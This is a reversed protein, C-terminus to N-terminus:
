SKLMQPLDNEVTTTLNLNYEEHLIKFVGESIFEPAKPGIVIDRIGLHLLGLLIAVAKQEFWSLVITLPLDNVQCDFADALAVAINVASISNNCQGLDIFRPIDGITGFDIDNFRFKGCASTLILCDSPVSMALEKFYNGDRGPADCGAIVFFRKIAGSKVAEIIAPALALVNSHHFGTTLTKDSEMSAKPLSLAKQILPSLDGEKIKAVNELGTAGLSFIRDSYTGKIPMVCNTTVLIAGPFGEFLKRQDTWSKGLNGKLHAFKKLEPYGHAPLMESHTYINIGKGETEELLKKLILLDHGSVLIAHGEAKGQQVTAPTPMGLLKTHADDLLTMAKLAMEGTKMVMALHEDMNFNVNTMTFYLAEHVFGDVEQDIAGLERAHKAYAAIGKLGIIIIDQLSALDESKGCVGFTTCGGKISQECQNCFMNKKEEKYNKTLIYCHNVLLLTVIYLLSTRQSIDFFRTSILTKKSSTIDNVPINM